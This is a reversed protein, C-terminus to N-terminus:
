TRRSDDRTVELVAEPQTFFAELTYGAKEAYQGGTILYVPVRDSREGKFAAEMREKRTTM